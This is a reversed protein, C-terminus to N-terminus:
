LAAGSVHSTQGRNRFLEWHGRCMANGDLVTIAVMDLVQESGLPTGIKPLPKGEVLCLVCMLPHM